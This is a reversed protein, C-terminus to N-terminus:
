MVVVRHVLEVSASFIVVVYEGLSVFSCHVLPSFSEDDFPLFVVSVCFLPQFATLTAEVAFNHWRFPVNDMVTTLRSSMFLHFSKEMKKVDIGLGKEEERGNGIHGM